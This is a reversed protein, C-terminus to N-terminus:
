AATPAFTVRFTPNDATVPVIAWGNADVPNFIDSFAFTWIGNSGRTGELCQGSYKPADTTRVARAPKWGPTTVHCLEVRADAANMSAGDDGLTKLRLETAGGSLRMYSYKTVQGAIAEIPLGNKPPAQEAPTPAYASAYGSQTIRLPAPAAPTEDPATFVPTFEVPAFPDDEPITFDFLDSSTVEPTPLTTVATADHSGFSPLLATDGDDGGALPLPVPSVFLVLALFAVAAGVYLRHRMLQTALKRGLSEGEASREAFVTKLLALDEARAAQMAEVSATVADDNYAAALREVDDTVRADGTNDRLLQPVHVSM